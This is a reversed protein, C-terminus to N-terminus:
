YYSFLSYWQFFFFCLPFAILDLGPCLPGASASAAFFVESTNKSRCSTWLSAHMCRHTTSPASLYTGTKWFCLMFYGALKSAPSGRFYSAGCDESFLQGGMRSTAVVVLTRVVTGGMHSFLISCGQLLIMINHNATQRSVDHNRAIRDSDM